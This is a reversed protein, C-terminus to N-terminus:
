KSHKWTSDILKGQLVLTRESVTRSSESSNFFPIHLLSPIRFKIYNQSHKYPQTNDWTHNECILFYCYTVLNKFVCNSFCFKNLILNFLSDYKLILFKAYFVYTQLSIKTAGDSHTNRIENMEKKEQKLRLFKRM